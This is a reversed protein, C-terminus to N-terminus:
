RIITTFATSEDYKPQGINKLFPKTFHFVGFYSLIKENNKCLFYLLIKTSKKRKKQFHNFNNPFIYLNSIYQPVYFVM